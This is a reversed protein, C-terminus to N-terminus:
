MRQGTESQLASCFGGSPISFAATVNVEPSPSPEPTDEQWRKHSCQRGGLPDMLKGSFSAVFSFSVQHRTEAFGVQGFPRRFMLAFVKVEHGPPM